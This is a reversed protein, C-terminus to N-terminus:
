GDALTQWVDDLKNQIPKRDEVTVDLEEGEFAVTVSNFSRRYVNESGHDADSESDRSELLGMETLDKIRHDCTDVPIDLQGSFEQASRADVAARLFQSREDTLARLLEIDSNQDNTPRKALSNIGTSM